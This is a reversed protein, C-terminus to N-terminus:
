LLRDRGQALLILSARLAEQVAGGVAEVIRDQLLEDAHSAAEIEAKTPVKGNMDQACLAGSTLGSVRISGGAARQSGPGSVARPPVPPIRLVVSM